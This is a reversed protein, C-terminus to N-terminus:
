RGPLFLGLSEEERFAIRVILLLLIPLATTMLTLLALDSVANTNKMIMQTTAILPHNMDRIDQMNHYVFSTMGSNMLLAAQMAFLALSPKWMRRFWDTNNHVGMARGAVILPWVGWVAGIGSLLIALWPNTFSIGRYLIYRAVSLPGEGATLMTLLALVLLMATKGGKGATVAPRALCYCLITNIGASVFAILIYMPLSGYLSFRGAAISPLAMAALVGSALLVVGGPLILAQMRDKITDGDAAIGQPFLRKIMLGIPFATLLLLFGRIIATIIQAAAGQGFGGGVLNRYSYADMGWLGIMRIPMLRMFPFDFLGMLSFVLLAAVGGAMLPVSWSRKGRSIAASVLIAPLGVYRVTCLAIMLLLVGINSPTPILRTRFFLNALVESPIFLPILLLTSFGIRLWRIKGVALLLYGTVISTVFLMLSSMLGYAMTPSITTVFNQDSFIRQFNGLGVWASGFLGQLPKYATLSILLETLAPLVVLVLAAILAGILLVIGVVTLAIPDKKQIPASQIM